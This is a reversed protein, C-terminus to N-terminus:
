STSEENRITFGCGAWDEDALASWWPSMTTEAAACADELAGIFRNREVARSAMLTTTSAMTTM